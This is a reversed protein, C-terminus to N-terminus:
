GGTLDACIVAVGLVLASLVSQPATRTWGSSWVGTLVSDSMIFGLFVGFALGVVLVGLLQRVSPLKQM